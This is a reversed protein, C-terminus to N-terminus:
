KKSLPVLERLDLKWLRPHVAYIFLVSFLTMCGGFYISPITGLLKAALGSEFAGLENSSGIFISNVSAIRGRMEDPSLLQVIAGRIVMSVSDLAGSVALFIAAPLLTESAAFGLICLGFGFVVAFLLRGVNRELPNRILYFGMLVAGVAPAARLVGLTEPGAHLIDKVFVPLIAMVGGFLVAFMDLTLASLLRPERIVFRVGEFLENIFSKQVRVVKQIPDLQILHTAVVSVGLLICAVAYPLHLGWAGLLVGAIAPGGVTSLKNVSANWAVARSINTLPVLRPIMAQIAPSAFGRVLGTVVAALLLQERSHANWAILLSVLSLVQVIQYIRKPSFLDVLYGAFLALSLAPIAECLGVLGLQLPDNTMEYMQWGLLIAQAQTSFGISFRAFILRYFSPSFSSSQHVAM